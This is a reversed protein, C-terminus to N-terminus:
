QAVITPAPPAEIESRLRAMDGQLFERVTQVATLVDVNDARESLQALHQDAREDARLTERQVARGDELASPEADLVAPWNHQPAMIQYIRQLFPCPFVRITGLSGDVTTIYALQMAEAARGVKDGFRTIDDLHWKHPIRRMFGPITAHAITLEAELAALAQIGAAANAVASHDSATRRNQRKTTKM